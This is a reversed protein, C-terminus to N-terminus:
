WEIRKRYRDRIIIAIIDIGLVLTVLVFATGWANMFMEPSSLRMMLEYLHYTLSPTPELVSTPIDAPFFVTATFMIPATEGAARGISLIGGTIMGPIAEPLVVKKITEWKTAGMALSGERVSRPVNKLAEETTVIVTPVTMIGLLIWGALLTPRGFFSVLFAYGFLGFIISPIGNLSNVAINIIRTIRSTNAYEVLYIATPVGLLIAIVVTGAVLYLTGIICPFIGGEAGYNKIDQTLFELTLAGSGNLFLISLIFGLILLVISTALGLLIFTFLQNAQKKFGYHLNTALKIIIIGSILLLISIIISIDVSIMLNDFIISLVSLTRSGLINFYTYYNAYTVNPPLRLSLDISHIILSFIVLIIFYLLFFYKKKTNFGTIFLSNYRDDKQISPDKRHNLIVIKLFLYLSILAPILLLAPVVWSYIGIYNSAFFEKSSGILTIFGFVLITFGILYTLIDIRAIRRSTNFIRDKIKLNTM